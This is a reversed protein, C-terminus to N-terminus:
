ENNGVSPGALFGGGGGGSSAAGQCDQLYDYALTISYETLTDAVDYSLDIAGVEVPWTRM